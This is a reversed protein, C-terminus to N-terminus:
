EYVYLSAPSVILGMAFLKGFIGEREEKVDVWHISSSEGKDAFFGIGGRKLRSDTWTDVIQGNVRTVFQNGRVSMQVHYLTDARISLPLPLRQRDREAGNLVTYRVLDAVPLAGSKRVVIKSAYYNRLDPARFAWSMANKEIQGEFEMRYDALKVSPRWIKLGTPRMQGRDNDWESARGGLWGSVGSAFDDHIKVPSNQPIIAKLYENAQALIPNSRSFEGSLSVAKQSMSQSGTSGTAASFALVAIMIASLVVIVQAQAKSTKQKSRKEDQVIEYLDEDGYILSERANRANVARGRRRHEENCFERDSLARWFGIKGKCYGCRM